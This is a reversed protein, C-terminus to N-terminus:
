SKSEGKPKRGRRAPKRAANQNGEPAGVPAPAFADVSAIVVLYKMSRGSGIAIAEIQGLQVRRRMTTAAVGKRNAASEITELGFKSLPVLRPGTQQEAM